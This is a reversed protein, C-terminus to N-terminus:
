FNMRGLFCFLCPELEHAMRTTTIMTAKMINMTANSKSTRPISIWASMLTKSMKMLIPFTSTLLYRKCRYVQLM